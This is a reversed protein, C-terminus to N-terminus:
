RRGPWSSANPYVTIRDPPPMPMSITPGLPRPEPPPPPGLTNLPPPTPLPNDLRNYQLAAQTAGHVGFGSDRLTQATTWLGTDRGYLSSVYTAQLDHLAAGHQASYSGSYTDIMGQSNEGYPLSSDAAGVVNLGAAQRGMQRAIETNLDYTLRDLQDQTAGLNTAHTIMSDRYDLLHSQLGDIYRQHELRHEPNDNTAEYQATAANEALLQEAIGPPDAGQGVTVFHDAALDGDTLVASTVPSDTV